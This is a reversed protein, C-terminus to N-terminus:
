RTGSYLENYTSRTVECNRWKQSSSGLVEHYKLPHETQKNDTWQDKLFLMFSNHKKPRSLKKRLRRLGPSVQKRNTKVYAKFRKKTEAAIVSYQHKEQPALQAWARAREKSLEQIPKQLSAYQSVFVHYSTKWNNRAVSLLIVQEKKSYVCSFNARLSPTDLEEWPSPPPFIDPFEKVRQWLHFADSCTACLINAHNAFCRHTCGQEPSVAGSM